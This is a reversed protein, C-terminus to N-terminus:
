IIYINIHIDIYFTYFSDLFVSSSHDNRNWVCHFSSKIFVKEYNLEAVSSIRIKHWLNGFAIYLIDLFYHGM